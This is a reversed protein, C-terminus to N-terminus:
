GNNRKEVFHSMILDHDCALYTVDVIVVPVGDRTTNM